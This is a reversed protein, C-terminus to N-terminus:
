FESVKTLAVNVNRVWDSKANPGLVSSAASLDNNEIAQGVKSLKFVLEQLYGANTSWLPKLVILIFCKFVLLRYM